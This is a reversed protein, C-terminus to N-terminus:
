PIEKIQMSCRLQQQRDLQLSDAFAFGREVCAFANEGAPQWVICTPCHEGDIFLRHSGTDLLQAHQTQEFVADTAHGFQILGQQQRHELQQLNDLYVHQQLGSLHAQKTADLRFYTHWAFSLPLSQQSQNDLQLRLQITEGLHMTHRALFRFPFASTAEHQYSFELSIYQPHQQICELHWQHTQAYGHIPWQKNSHHGFWPLCLPIGGIIADGAVFSNQNDLYLWPKGNKPTFQLLQAGQLSIIAQCQDTKLQLLPLAQQSSFLLRSDSLTLNVGKLKANQIIHM